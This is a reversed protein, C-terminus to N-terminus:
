SNEISFPYEEIVEDYEMQIQERSYGLDEITTRNQGKHHKAEGEAEKIREAYGDSM